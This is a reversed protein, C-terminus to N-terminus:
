PGAARCPVVREFPIAARVCADRVADASVADFLYFVVEDEPVLITGAFAVATGELRRVRAAGDDVQEQRVDPWFCEVIYTTRV